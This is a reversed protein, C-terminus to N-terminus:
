SLAITVIGTHYWTTGDCYFYCKENQSITAITTPSDDKVVLNEAGDAWNSIEFWAGKSSAEAPLNVDRHAGDPDIRLRNAYKLTLTLDAALTLVGLGNTVRQHRDSIEVTNDLGTLGNATSM